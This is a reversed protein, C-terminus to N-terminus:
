PPWLLFGLSSWWKSVPAKQHKAVVERLRKALGSNRTMPIRLTTTAGLARFWTSKDAKLNERREEKSRYFPKGETIYSIQDSDQKALIRKAVIERDKQSYGAWSMQIMLLNIVHM